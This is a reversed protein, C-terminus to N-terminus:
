EGTRAAFGRKLRGRESSFIIATGRRMRFNYTDHLLLTDRADFSLVM